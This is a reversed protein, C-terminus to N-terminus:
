VPVEEDSSIGRWISVGTDIGGLLFIGSSAIFYANDAVLGEIAVLVAGVGLLAAARVGIRPSAGYALLVIGALWAASLAYYPLTWSSNQVEDLAVALTVDDLDPRNSLEGLTGWTFGDLAFAFALGLSGVIGLAVGWFALRPREVAVYRGLGAIAAVILILSVFGILHAVQWRTASEAIAALQDAENGRGLEEPHILNDVFFLAPGAILAAATWRRYRAVDV